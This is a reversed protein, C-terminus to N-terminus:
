YDVIGNFASVDLVSDYGAARGLHRKTGTARLELRSKAAVADQVADQVQQLDSAVIDTM